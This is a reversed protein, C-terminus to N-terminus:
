FRLWSVSQEMTSTLDEDNLTM